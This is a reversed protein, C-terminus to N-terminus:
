ISHTHTAYRQNDQTWLPRYDQTALEKGGSHNHLVQTHKAIASTFRLQSHSASTHLAKEVAHLRHVPNAFLYRTCANYLSIHTPFPESGCRFPACPVTHHVFLLSPFPVFMNQNHLQLLGKQLLPDQKTSCTQWTIQM